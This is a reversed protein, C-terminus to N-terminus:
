QVWSVTDLIKRILSQDARAQTTIQVSCVGGKGQVSAEWGVAEKEPLHETLTATVQENGPQRDVFVFPKSLFIARQSTNEITKDIPVSHTYVEHPLQAALLRGRYTSLRIFQKEPGSAVGATKTDFTAPVGLACDGGFDKVTKWGAPIPAPTWQYNSVRLRCAAVQYTLTKLRQPVILEWTSSELERLKGKSFDDTRGDVLAKAAAVNAKYRATYESQILEFDLPSHRDKPPNVANEALSGRCSRLTESIADLKIADATVSEYVQNWRTEVSPTSSSQCGFQLASILAIALALQRAHPRAATQAM